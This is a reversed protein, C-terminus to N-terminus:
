MDFALVSRKALPALAKSAQGVCKAFLPVVQLGRKSQVKRVVIEAANVAADLHRGCHSSPNRIPHPRNRLQECLCVIRGMKLVARMNDLSKKGVSVVDQAKNRVMNYDCNSQRLIELDERKSSRM